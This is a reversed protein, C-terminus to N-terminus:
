QKGRATREELFPAVMEECRSWLRHALVTDEAEPSSAVEVVEKEGKREGEKRGIVWFGGGRGEVRESSALFVVPRAGEYPSQLLSYSLPWFIFRLLAPALARNLSTHVMGPSCGYVCLHDDSPDWRQGQPSTSSPLLSSPTFSSPPHHAHDPLAWGQRQRNLHTVMLMNALKSAGYALFPKYPPCGTHAGERGGERGGEESKKKKKEKEESPALTPDRMWANLYGAKGRELRSSVMIVRAPSGEGRGTAKLAPMLLSTLLFPGLHNTAMSKEVLMQKGEKRGKGEAGAWVDVVERKPLLVGANNVLVHLSGGGGMGGVGRGAGGKEMERLFSDAFARVSPLSALDLPAPAPFARGSPPLSPSSRPLRKNIAAATAEAKAMDRCACVVHAGKRALLEAAALGVGSNAGTVLVTRGAMTGDVAYLENDPYLRRKIGRYLAISSVAGALGVSAEIVLEM